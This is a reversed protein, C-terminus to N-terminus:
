IDGGGRLNGDFFFNNNKRTSYFKLYNKQKDM